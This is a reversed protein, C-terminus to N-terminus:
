LRGRAREYATARRQQERGLRETESEIRRAALKRAKSDADSANSGKVADKKEDSM